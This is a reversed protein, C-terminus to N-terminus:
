FGGFAPWGCVADAIRDDDEVLLIRPPVTAM